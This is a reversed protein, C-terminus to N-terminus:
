PNTPAPTPAPAPASVDKTNVNISVKNLVAPINSVQIVGLIPLHPVYLYRPQVVTEKSIGSRSINASLVLEPAWVMNGFNLPNPSVNRNEDFVGFTVFIKGEVRQDLTSVIRVDFGGSLTRLDGDINIYRALVPDTAIIVTPVKSIGGSLADAAAKYESDRYMRYAMDRIHNVLVAQIDAAREHSRISDIALLMDISISAFTTLVYHRGIATLGQGVDTKAREDYIQSLTEAFQILSGVADNGMRIRTTAILAQVDSADTSGDNNIPHMSTIPSRLPVNYLQTFKQVDILQGQQRRNMNTRYALLDYSDMKASDFLNVIALGDGSTLDLKRGDASHVEYVSVRNGYVETHGFEINTVGSVAMELYVILDNDAIVKLDVLASGDLNKSDKNLMLAQTKFTLNSQKYHDQPAGIFNANALNLTPFKIVDDDGVTVYVNSLTITPDLSDTQNMVGTKLLAETQSLGIIDIKRGFKLPASMIAEGELDYGAEPIVDSFNAKSAPTDRWVPIVRTQDKKLINPNAVARIINKKKWDAAAGNIDREIADYVMMLNVTIGFGVNENTLTLSPWLTESFEDQRSAQYNYALSYVVANKNEREDYAELGHVRKSVADALGTAQVVMLNENGVQNVNFARAMAAKFDGAMLAASTAATEQAPTVKYGEGNYGQSSGFLKMAITSVATEVKNGANNLREFGDDSISEAGISAMLGGVEKNVMKGGDIQERLADVFNVMQQDQAIRGSQSTKIFSLQKM